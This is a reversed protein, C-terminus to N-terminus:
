NSITSTIDHIIDDILEAWSQLTSSEPQIQFSDYLEKLIKILPFPIWESGPHENLYFALSHEEDKPYQSIETILKNIKTLTSTPLVQQSSYLAQSKLFVIWSESLKEIFKIDSSVDLQSLTDLKMKFAKLPTLIIKPEFILKNASYNNDIFLELCSILSKLIVYNSIHSPKIDQNISSNHNDPSKNPEIEPISNPKEIGPTNQRFISKDFNSM